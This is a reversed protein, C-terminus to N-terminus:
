KLNELTKEARMKEYIISKQLELDEARTTPNITYTFPELPESDITKGNLLKKLVINANFEQNSKYENFWNCKRDCGHQTIKDYKIETPNSYVRDFRDNGKDEYINEFKDIWLHNIKDIQTLEYLGRMEKGGFAIMKTKPPNLSDGRVEIGHNYYNQWSNRKNDWINTSIMNFELEERFTHQIKVVLCEISSVGSCSSTSTTIKINDLTHEPDFVDTIEKGDFTRDLSITAKSQSFSEGHGLGFALGVHSISDVGGDDYIKLMVTNEKGVDVNVLPYPTYFQEVDIPNDNYSFGNSVIRNFNKDIGLTPPQCNDCQGGSSVSDVVLGPSVLGGSGRGPNPYDNITFSNSDGQYTATVTGFVEAHIGHPSNSNELIIGNASNGCPCLDFVTFTDGLFAALTKTIPNTSDGFNVHAEYLNTDPGTETFEPSFGTKDSDSVVFIPPGELTQIELSNPTTFITDFVTITVGSGPSAINASSMLVLNASTFTGLPGENLTFDFGQPDVSSTIRVQISGSGTADPDIVTVIVPATPGISGQVGGDDLNFFKFNFTPAIAFADQNEFLFLISFTILVLFFMTKGKSDAVLIKL